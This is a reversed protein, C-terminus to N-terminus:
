QSLPKRCLVQYQTGVPWSSVWQEVPRFWKLMKPFIFLFDTRLIEFGGRQLMSRSEPPTLTIADKDFPIRSMVYRTAPNWPNNEWYAFVGGPKLADIVTKVAGERQDLPIHHFVGNCFVLDCKQEPQYDALTAFRRQEQGWQQRAIEISEASLDIGTIEEVGSIAHLLPVSTGTGCGYDLIFTPRFNLKALCKKLFNVRGVAFYEKSEGSVSLGQQLAADYNRAFQDFEPQASAPVTVNM